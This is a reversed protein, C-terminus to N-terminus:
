RYIDSARGDKRGDRLGLAYARHVLDALVIQAKAFRNLRTQKKTRLTAHYLLSLYSTVAKVLTAHTPNDEGIIEDAEGDKLLRQAAQVDALLEKSTRKEM